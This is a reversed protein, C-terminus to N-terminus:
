GRFVPDFVHEGRGVRSKLSLVLAQAGPLIEDPAHLARAAFSTSCRVPSFEAQEKTDATHDPTHTVPLCRCHDCTQVRPLTLVSM